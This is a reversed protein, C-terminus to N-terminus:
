VDTAPAVSAFVGSMTAKVGHKGAVAAFVVIGTDIGERPEPLVLVVTVAHPKWHLM